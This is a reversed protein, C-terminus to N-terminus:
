IESCGPECHGWAPGVHMLDPQRPSATSPMHNTSRVCGEGIITSSWQILDGMILGLVSQVSVLLQLIFNEHKSASRAGDFSKATSLQSRGVGRHLPAFWVIRKGRSAASRVSLACVSSSGM